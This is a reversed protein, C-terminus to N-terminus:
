FYCACQLQSCESCVGGSPVGYGVSCVFYGNIFLVYMDISM